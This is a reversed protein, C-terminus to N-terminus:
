LVSYDTNSGCKDCFKATSPLKNGCNRCYKFCTIVGSTSPNYIPETTSSCDSNDPSEEKDSGHMDLPPNEFAVSNKIIEDMNFDSNLSDLIGDLEASNPYQWERSRFENDHDWYGNEHLLEHFILYKIVEKDIKPSSLLRNITIQYLNGEGSFRQCLAFWKRVINKSWSIQVLGKTSLKPFMTIVENLLDPLNFYNEVIKYEERVDESVLATDIRPKMTDFVTKKFAFFYKYIQQIIPKNDFLKKLWEEKDDYKEYLSNMKKAIEVPDLLDREAFTYYPPMSGTENIYDLIYNIENTAPLIAASSFYIDILREASVRDKILVINRNIDEYIKLQCDYVLLTVADGDDNVVSYWGVPFSFVGEKATLSARVSAYLKLYLDRITLQSIEFGEPPEDKKTPMLELNLGEQNPEIEPIYEEPISEEATNIEDKLIDLEGPDIWNAFTNWTDHFAVIYAVDTGGAKVGRLGRGIMQMLLSDSNTERTLFVTKINPVDSGETMMQVNILVQFKDDKYDQIVAQSEPRSSVVYDCSIGAKKFEECLTEAHMQNVAFILTKGYREKNDLYCKLILSNRASSRAIQDKLKESLENFREFFAKDEPSCEYEIEGIIETDIKEYYPKALFGSKLLQKMTVEYVYGHRGKQKAINSDINFLHILRQQEYENMRVPTATLGLLVMYPNLSKIRKLVKQYNAAVAHHAEDIVVIVKRKGAAGLMREIFRYGFKNAISAISCVYVDAKHANSMHFHAGSVPLVRFEKVPTGQLLPAQKRFEKWTQDVLEQRHVLWVVRYGNAVGQKLLWTVATYTKGSGTPMVVLGNRESLNQDLSYYETMADVAEQQHPMILSRSDPKSKAIIIPEFMELETMIIRSKELELKESCFYGIKRSCGVQGCLGPLILFCRFRGSVFGLFGLVDLDVM